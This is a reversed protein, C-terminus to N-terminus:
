RLEEITKELLQTQATRNEEELRVSDPSLFTSEINTSSSNLKNDNITSLSSSSFQASEENPSSMAADMNNSTAVNRAIVAAGKRAPPIDEEAISKDDLDNYLDDTHQDESNYEPLSM